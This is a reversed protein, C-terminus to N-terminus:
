DAERQENNAGKLMSLVFNLAEYEKDSIVDFEIDYGLQQELDGIRVFGDGILPIKVFEYYADLFEGAALTRGNKILRFKVSNYGNDEAYEIIQRTNM